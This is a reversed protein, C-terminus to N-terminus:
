KGQSSIGSCGRTHVHTFTHTHTDPPAALHLASEEVEPAEPTEKLELPRLSDSASVFIRLLLKVATGSAPPGKGSLRATGAGPAQKGSKAAPLPHPSGAVRGARKGPDGVMRDPSGKDNQLQLRKKLPPQKWTLMLEGRLRPFGGPNGQLVLRLDLDKQTDPLAHGTSQLLGAEGAGELGGIPHAPRALASSCGRLRRIADGRPFLRTIVILPLHLIKDWSKRNKHAASESPSQYDQRSIVGWCALHGELGRPSRSSSLQM